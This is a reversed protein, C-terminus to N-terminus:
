KFKMGKNLFASQWKKITDNAEDTNQPTIEQGEFDAFYIRTALSSYDDGSNSNGNGLEENILRAQACGYSAFADVSDAFDNPSVSGNKDIDQGYKQMFKDSLQFVGKKDGHTQDDSFGSVAKAYSAVFNADVENCHTANIFLDQKYKQDITTDFKGPDVINFMMAPDSVEESAQNDSQDPSQQQTQEIKNAGEQPKEEGDSSCAALLSICAMPIIVLSKNKMIKEGKPLM